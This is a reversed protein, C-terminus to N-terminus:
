GENAERIRALRDSEDKLAAEIEQLISDTDAAVVEQFYDGTLQTDPHLGGAEYLAWIEDAYHGLLLEPASQGYYATINNIDRELMSRAHNNGAANVAQPLDIIVPGYDDVLVNFESLDGHVMGICLMKVVYSMVTAHDELAQERTLVVDNLRPAVDGDETTVLEMLLVGDFCGFPEPVRVGARELQYLANVETNHWEAEQQKRGYKSGKDIARQRRSNGGKRGEKYQVAQKFSRKAAEKYVKACRIDRGCRVVYVTAEKGSMLQQLVEDIVGDEILPLIRKPTKM